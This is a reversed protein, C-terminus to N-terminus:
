PIERLPGSVTWISPFPTPGQWRSTKSPLSPQATPKLKAAAPAEKLRKAYNSYGAFIEDAGEGTLVVKVKKRTLRSLLLTPLAAQDGFPEDFVHELMGILDRPTVELPHFEADLHDAVKKAHAEEGVAISFMQVRTGSEEQMLAAVLSSDIGGSVFAGIPVDAILMSRVSRRLQKELEYLAEEEDTYKPLYTPTWYRSQVGKGEEWILFHAAPLKRISRFISFPAPIYQCELYLGIAQPDVERSVAPHVLLAKLESAFLIKGAMECIYLPKVGFHDRALLLRKGDWFGFAFMGQFRPLVTEGWEMLAHLVVETDGRTKFRHGLEELEKRIELYNYLEGNYVLACNGEIMPQVSAELDLIALRQHGLAVPGQVYLGTADPGRHVIEALMKELVTRDQPNPDVWGVIGCM